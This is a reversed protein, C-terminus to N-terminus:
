GKGFNMTTATVNNAGIIGSQTGGSINTQINAAVEGGIGHAKLAEVLRELAKSVDIDEAARVAEVKEALVGAQAKSAPDNEIATIAQSVPATEGWKRHIVAKLGDYAGKVGAKITENALTTVIATTIPDM